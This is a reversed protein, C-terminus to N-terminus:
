TKDKNQYQRFAEGPSNAEFFLGVKTEQRNEIHDIIYWGAEVSVLKKRENGVYQHTRRRAPYMRSNAYNITGGVREVEPINRVPTAFVQLFIKGVESLFGM